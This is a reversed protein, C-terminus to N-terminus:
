GAVEGAVAAERMRHLALLGLVIVIRGRRERPLREWISAPLDSMALDLGVCWRPCRRSGLVRHNAASRWSILPLTLPIDLPREARRLAQEFRPRNIMFEVLGDAAVDGAAEEGQHQFLFQLVADGRHAFDRWLRGPWIRASRSQQGLGLDFLVPLTEDQARRGAGGRAQRQAGGADGQRRGHTLEGSEEVLVGALTLAHM